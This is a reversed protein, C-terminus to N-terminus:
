KKQKALYEEIKRMNFYESSHRPYASRVLLKQQFARLEGDHKARLQALTMAAHAEFAAQREDWALHFRRFEVVFAEEVALVEALQRSRLAEKRRHLEHERVEALRQRRACVHPAGTPFHWLRLRAAGRGWQGRAPPPPQFSASPHRLDRM